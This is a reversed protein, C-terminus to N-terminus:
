GKFKIGFFALEPLGGIKKQKYVIRSDLDQLKRVFINRSIENGAAERFKDYVDQVPIFDDELGTIDLFKEAFDTIVPNLKKKRRTTHVEEARIVREEAAAPNIHSLVELRVEEKTMIGQAYLWKIFETREAFNSGNFFPYYSWFKEPASQPIAGMQRARAMVAEPTNWAEEMRILYRRIERGKENNEVIAIEKAMQLYLFYIDRAHGGGQARIVMEGSKTLHYDVDEVFGYKEIRDKIWTTFDRRVELRDHLDRANVGQKGQYEVVPILENMTKVELHNIRKEGCAAAQGFRAKKPM